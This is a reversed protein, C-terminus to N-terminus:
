PNRPSFIKFWKEGEQTLIIKSGKKNGNIYILGLEKETPDLITRNLKVYQAHEKDKCKGLELYNNNFM